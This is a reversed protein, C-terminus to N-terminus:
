AGKTSFQTLRGAENRGYVYAKKLETELCPTCLGGTEGGDGQAFSYGCLPCNFEANTVAHGNSNVTVQTGCRACKEGVIQECRMCLRTM